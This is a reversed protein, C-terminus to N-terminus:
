KSGTTLWRQSAGTIGTEQFEGTDGGVGSRPSSRAVVTSHPSAELPHFVALAM